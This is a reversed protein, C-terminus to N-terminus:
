KVTNKKLKQETTTDGLMNERVSHCGDTMVEASQQKKPAGTESNRRTFGQQDGNASILDPM